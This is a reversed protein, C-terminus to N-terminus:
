PAAVPPDSSVLKGAGSVVATWPKEVERSVRVIGKLLVSGDPRLELGDNAYPANPNGEPTFNLDWLVKGTADLRVLRASAGFAPTVYSLFYAVCGDDPTPILTGGAQEQFRKNPLTRDWLRKGSPGVKAVVASARRVGAVFGNGKESVAAARSQGMPHESLELGSGKGYAMAAALTEGRALRAAAESGAAPAAVRAPPQLVWLGSAGNPRSQRCSGAFLYKGDMTGHFGPSGKSCGPFLEEIPISTILKLDETSRVDVVKRPSLEYNNVVLFYGGAPAVHFEHITKTAQVSHTQKRDVVDIRLVTGAEHSGVLLFRSDPPFAAGYASLPIPYTDIRRRAVDIVYVQQQPRAPADREGARDNYEVLALRSGDKSFRASDIKLRRARRPPEITLRWDIEVTKLDVRALEYRVPGDSLEAKEARVAWAFYWHTDTPDYGLPHLYGDPVVDALKLLKSFRHSRHDYQVLWAAVRKWGNMQDVQITTVEGDHHLLEGGELKAIGLTALQERPFEHFPIEMDVIGLTSLDLLRYRVAARTGAPVDARGVRGLLRYRSASLMQWKASFNPGDGMMEATVEKALWPPEVALATSLLAAAILPTM